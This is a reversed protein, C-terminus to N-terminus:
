AAWKEAECPIIAILAKRSVKLDAPADLQTSSQPGEIALQNLGKTTGWRRVCRANKIEVWDPTTVTEGVWVFGRDAVVLVLGHAEGTITANEGM